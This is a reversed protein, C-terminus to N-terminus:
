GKKINENLLAQVNDLRQQAIAQGLVSKQLGNKIFVQPDVDEYADIIRAWIQYTDNNKQTSFLISAGILILHFRERKRHADLRQIIKVIGHSQLAAVQMLSEGYQKLLLALDRYVNPVALRGCLSEIQGLELSFVMAAFRLLPSGECHSVAIVNECAQLLAPEDFEPMIDEIAGSTQLVQLFCEPNAEALAKDCEQWVREAVLHKTEGAAVMSQMLTMTNDAVRFGLRAFRALFRAVRLIRVPDEAFADSVHRLYRQDLDKQGNLPDLLEGATDRVMANITLDRRLLDQELTVTEDAHFTFGQYGPATKRETRALAYEEHTEPHLFVPFDKGVPRFGQEVMLAPTAGVVLWDKEKVPLGLLEDRVAGGVLYIEM